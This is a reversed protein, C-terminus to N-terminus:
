TVVRIMLDTISWVVIPLYIIQTSMESIKYGLLVSPSFENITHLNRNNHAIMNCEIHIINVNIINIPVDSKHWQRPELVRNSSFRLLLGINHPKIFNVRYACKIESKMTNNNAHIILPYKEDEKRLM